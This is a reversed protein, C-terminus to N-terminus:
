IPNAFVEKSLPKTIFGQKVDVYRVLIQFTHYGSCSFKKM